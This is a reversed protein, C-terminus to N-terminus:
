PTPRAMSEIGAIVYHLPDDFHIARLAAPPEAPPGGLIVPRIDPAGDPADGRRELAYTAERIVWESASAHYSWFLLFLDCCDIEAYLRREWREGPELSLIDQFFDIGVARLAQARKVVEVRDAAAYSLFARRYRKAADGRLTPADHADASAPGIGLSFVLAGVPVSDFMIRLRVNVRRGAADEPIAVLFQCSRPAGRWVMLQRPEDVVLGPADLM